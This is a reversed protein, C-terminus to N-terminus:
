SHMIGSVPPKTKRQSYSTARTRSVERLINDMWLFMPHKPDVIYGWAIESWEGSDLRVVDIYIPVAKRSSGSLEILERLSMERIRPGEAELIFCQFRQRGYEDIWWRFWSEGHQDDRMVFGREDIREETSQPPWLGAPGGDDHRYLTARSFSKEAQDDLLARLQRSKELFLNITAEALRGFLELMEPPVGHFNGSLAHM